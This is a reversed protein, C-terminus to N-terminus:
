NHYDRRSPPFPHKPSSVSGRTRLLPYYGRRSWGRTRTDHRQLGGSTSGDHFGLIWLRQPLIGRCRSFAMCFCAIRWCCCQFLEHLNRIFFRCKCNNLHIISNYTFRVTDTLESVREGM